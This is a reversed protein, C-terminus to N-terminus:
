IKKYGLFICNNYMGNKSCQGGNLIVTVSSSWVITYDSTYIPFEILSEM